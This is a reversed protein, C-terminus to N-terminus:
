TIKVLDDMISKPQNIFEDKKFNSIPEGWNNKVKKHTRDEKNEM